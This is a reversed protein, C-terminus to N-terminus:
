AIGGHQIALASAVGNDGNRWRWIVGSSEAMGAGNLPWQWGYWQCQAM